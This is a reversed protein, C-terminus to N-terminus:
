PVVDGAVGGVERRVGIVGFGCGEIGLGYDLGVDVSADGAGLEVEAHGKVAAGEGVGGTETLGVFTEACPGPFLADVVEFVQREGACGLVPVFGRVGCVTVVVGRAHQDAIIREIQRQRLHIEDFLILQAASHPPFDTAIPVIAPADDTAYTDFGLIEANPFIISSVLFV